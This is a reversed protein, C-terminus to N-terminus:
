GMGNSFVLSAAEPNALVVKVGARSQDVCCVAM